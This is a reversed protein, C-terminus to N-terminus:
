DKSSRAREKPSIVEQDNFLACADRTLAPEAELQGIRRHAGALEDAEVSPV